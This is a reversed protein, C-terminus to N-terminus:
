LTSPTKKPYFLHQNKEVSIKQLTTTIKQLTPPPKRQYLQPFPKKCLLQNKKLVQTTKKKQNYLQPSKKKM